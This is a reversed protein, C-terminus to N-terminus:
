ILGGILWDILLDIFILFFFPGSPQELSWGPKSGPGPRRHPQHLIHKAGLHVPKKDSIVGCIIDISENLGLLRGLNDNRCSLVAPPPFLFRSFVTCISVLQVSLQTSAFSRPSNDHTPLLNFDSPDGNGLYNMLLKDHRIWVWCHPKKCPSISFLNLYHAM